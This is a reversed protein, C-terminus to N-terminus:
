EGPRAKRGEVPRSEIGLATSWEELSRCVKHGPSEPCAQVRSIKMCFYETALARPTLNEQALYDGGGAISRHLLYWRTRLWRGRPGIWAPPM